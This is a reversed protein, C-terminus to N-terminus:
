KIQRPVRPMCAVRNEVSLDLEIWGFWCLTQKSLHSPEFRVMLGMMDVMQSIVVYPWSDFLYTHGRGLNGASSVKIFTVMLFFLTHGKWPFNSITQTDHM